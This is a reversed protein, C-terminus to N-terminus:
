YVTRTAAAGTCFRRRLAYQICYRKSVKHVEKSNVDTNVAILVGVDWELWKLM